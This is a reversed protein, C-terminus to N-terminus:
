INRDFTEPNLFNEKDSLYFETALIFSMGYVGGNLFKKFGEMKDGFIDFMKEFKKVTHQSFDM